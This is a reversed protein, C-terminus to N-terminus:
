EIFYWVDQGSAQGLLTPVDQLFNYIQVEIEGQYCSVEELPGEPSEVDMCSCPCLERLAETKSGDRFVSAQPKDCKKAFIKTLSPALGVCEARERAENQQAGEQTKDQQTAKRVGLTM